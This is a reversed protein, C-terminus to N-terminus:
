PRGGTNARAGGQRARRATFLLVAAAATVNLSEVGGELPITVGQAREALREVEEPMRGAESAVWLAVRGSWDFCEPDEGGRTRAFVSRFGAGELARIAAGPAEFELVSLRLLSGMSGRLAKENWPRCGGGTVALAEGGAAETARALAGLNGPDQVGAAVVVLASALRSLAEAGRREPERVLALCGPASELASLDAFISDELLHVEIGRAALERARAERRAGVLVFEPLLGARLAEDVLRDGELLLWGSEKVRKQGRRLARVRQVLPNRTSRITQLDIV